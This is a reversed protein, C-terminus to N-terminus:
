LSPVGLTLEHCIRGAVEGVDADFQWKRIRRIICDAEITNPETTPL